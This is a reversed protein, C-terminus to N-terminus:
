LMMELDRFCDYCVWECSQLEYIGHRGCRCRQKDDDIAKLLGAKVAEFAAIVKQQDVVETHRYDQMLQFFEENELYSMLKQRPTM